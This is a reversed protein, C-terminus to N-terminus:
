LLGRYHTFLAANSSIASGGDIRAHGSLDFFYGGAETVIPYLAACDWLNMMPDVMIEVRGTAVLMHGYCDSWGRFKGSSELLKELLDARGARKFGDFSTTCFIADKPDATKSVAARIVKSSNSPRWWAGSGKSAYYLERLGPFNVVGAVPEDKHTLGILTGFLPVGCVFSQTGDVPDLIWRYESNGAREGFEEGIIGDEPCAKELLERIKLEANRDADTVVTRDRKLEVNLRPDQYYRLIVKEAEEALHLAFKLKEAVENTM